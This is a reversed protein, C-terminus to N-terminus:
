SKFQNLKENLGDTLTFLHEAASAIEEVSRANATTLENINEVLKVIKQADASIKLSNEASHTVATVSEHMISSTDTITTEVDTSVVVLKKINDANKGMQEASDMISQVIVNITANIEVLSKQTREALKRVEDAVVAFGRGHEGARAAEIAANLALLNTQDAIDSIVTLIQKVNEADASMRELKEALQTEADSANNVEQQLAVMKNRAGDLKDGAQRINDKARESVHATEEIFTRVAAIETIASEVIGSSTEVNKGIQMSTSSLEHSVSANQNSSDKAEGITLRLTAILSNFSEVIERIENHKDYEIKTNLEKNKVFNTISDHILTVGGLINKGIMAGIALMVVVALLLVVFMEIDATTKEHAAEKSEKDALVINYKMHEDFAKTVKAATDKHERLLLEKAEAEKGSKALKMINSLLEMYKDSSARDEALMVKDKEDSILSEYKKLAADLEAKAKNLREENAEKQKPESEVLYKYAIVRMTSVNAIAENLVVISPVSNVNCYNTEEYVRELKYHGIGFVVGIGIIATAILTMLQRSITM